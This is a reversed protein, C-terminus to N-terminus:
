IPLKNVLDQSITTSLADHTMLPPDVVIVGMIPTPDLQLDIRTRTIESQKLLLHELVAPTFGSLTVEVRYVGDNLSTVTFAGNKDTVTTIERQVTEDRLVVTAGPLATGSEDHVVGTFAAHQPTAVQEIELKVKSGHTKLQPKECTNGGSAFASVSFLAAIVAAGLRSMRQRLARLGTPCDSTLITGDARRYLRGCVRGETRVLLARIEDGTMEAFNYVNLSCLTCHRVREDGAMSEWSVQCPAAVRVNRLQPM